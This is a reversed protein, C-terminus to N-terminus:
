ARAQRNREYQWLLATMMSLYPTPLGLERARTLPRQWLAEVELARGEVFDIMTSPKYPGLTDTQKFMRAVHAEGDIRFAEGRDELDANGAAVVEEMTARAAARLAPDGVIHHVSIGGALVTFGNFPINWCLKEWRAARLSVHGTFDVEAPAWLALAREVEAPDDLLHGVVVAGYGIHHVRGPELRNIGVFAMGGFIREPGFWEGVHEDLGLGNMLVLIRTRPGICPAILDRAAEISTAKLSCVVWDVPGIEEPRRAIAPSPFDMDGRPSTIHLGGAKVADYDRRLLFHVEHGAQALRGGYYSGIAGAGIVAVRQPHLPEGNRALRESESM